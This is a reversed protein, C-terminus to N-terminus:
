KKGFLRRLEARDRKIIADSVKPEPAEGNIIKLYSDVLKSKEEKDMRPYVSAVLLMYDEQAKLKLLNELMLFYRSAYEDLVM